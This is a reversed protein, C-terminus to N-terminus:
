DFHEHRISGQARLEAGAASAAVVAGVVLRYEKAGKEERGTKCTRGHYCPGHGAMGNLHSRSRWCCTGADPEMFRRVVLKACRKCPADGM